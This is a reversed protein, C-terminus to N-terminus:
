SKGSLTEIAPDVIERQLGARTNDDTVHLMVMGLCLKVAEYIM